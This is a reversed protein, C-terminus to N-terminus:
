VDRKVPRTIAYYKSTASAANRSNAKLIGSYSQEIHFCRRCFIRTTTGHKCLCVTEDEEGTLVEIKDPLPCVPKFNVHAEFLEPNEDGGVAGPSIPEKENDINSKVSTPTVGFMPEVNQKFDFGSSVKPGSVTGTALAGLSLKSAGGCFIGMASTSTTTSPAFLVPLIPDEGSVAVSKASILTPGL